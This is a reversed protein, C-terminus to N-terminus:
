PITRWIRRVDNYSWQLLCEMIESVRVTQDAQNWSKLTSPDEVGPIATVWVSHTRGDAEQQEEFELRHTLNALCFISNPTYYWHGEAERLSVGAM